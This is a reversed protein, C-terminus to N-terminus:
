WVKYDKQFTFLDAIKYHNSLNFGLKQFTMYWTKARGLDQNELAAFYL